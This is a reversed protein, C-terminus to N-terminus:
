NITSNDKSSSSFLGVFESASRKLEDVSDSLREQAERKDNQIMAFKAFGGLIGLSILTIAGWISTSTIALATGCIILIESMSININMRM